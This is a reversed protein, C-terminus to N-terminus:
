SAQLWKIIRAAVKITEQLWKPWTVPMGAALSGSKRLTPDLGEQVINVNTKMSSAVKPSWNSSAPPPCTQMDTLVSSLWGSKVFHTVDAYVGPANVEACGFGWSVVGILTAAGDNDKDNKAVLPGGSDGQCADKGGEMMGACIMDETMEDTHKGCNTKGYVDVTVKRLHGNLHQGSGDQGWGSVVAREGVLDDVTETDPLCAPKINPYAALDVPTSLVLVAIDNEVSVYNIRYDEHQRIEAVDKIFRTTDNAIALNTDGILVKIASPDRETCHAATIVYRDGVLTGGCSQTDPSDGYLLAVQWPYEGIKVEDDGVIRTSARMTNPVGCKCNNVANDPHVYMTKTVTVGPCETNCYAMETSQNNSDVKTACWPQADGDATTCTTYERILGNEAEAKFPFICPGKPTSCTISAKSSGTALLTGM